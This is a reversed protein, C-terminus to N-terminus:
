SRDKDARAAHQGSRRFLRKIRYWWTKVALALSAFVGVLATVVMSGTSPDLYALVDTPLLLLALSSCVALFTAPKLNIM